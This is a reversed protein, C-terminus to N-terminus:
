RFPNNSTRSGDAYKMGKAPIMGVQFKLWEGHGSNDSNLYAGVSQSVDARRRKLCNLMVM